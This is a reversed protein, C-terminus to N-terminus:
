TVHVWLAAESRNEQRSMSRSGDRMSEGENDVEIAHAEFREMYREGFESPPCALRAM